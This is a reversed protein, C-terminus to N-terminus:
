DWETQHSHTTPSLKARRVFSNLLGMGLTMDITAANSKPTGGLPVEWGEGVGDGRAIQTTGLGHDGDDSATAPCFAGFWLWLRFGKSPGAADEEEELADNEM